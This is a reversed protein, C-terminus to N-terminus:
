GIYIITDYYLTEDYTISESVIQYTPNETKWTTVEANLGEITENDFVIRKYGM